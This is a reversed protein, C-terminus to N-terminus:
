LYPGVDGNRASLLPLDNTEEDDDYEIDNPNLGYSLFWQTLIDVVDSGPWQGGNQKDLDVIQDWLEMVAPPIVRGVIAGDADKM